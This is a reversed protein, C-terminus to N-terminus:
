HTIYVLTTTAKETSSLRIHVPGRPASLIDLKGIDAGATVFAYLGTFGLNNGLTIAPKGFDIESNIFAGKAFFTDFCAGLWKKSSCVYGRPLDSGCNIISAKGTLPDPTLATFIGTVWPGDAKGRSYTFSRLRLYIGIYAVTAAGTDSGTGTM